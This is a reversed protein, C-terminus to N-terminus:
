DVKRAAQQKHIFDALTQLSHLAERAEESSKIKIGFEKEVRVVLELADISDLGLDSGMLPQDDALTQAESEDLDLTSIVINKLQELIPDSM